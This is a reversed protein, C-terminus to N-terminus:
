GTPVRAFAPSPERRREWLALLQSGAAFVAAAYAWGLVVDIFYHEATYVLTFSMALPYLALLWRRRGAAGWFFLMLLVPYATHLSPVAAVPNALHSTASFIHAGSRLGVRVWMEDIIKATPALAGNQSALWPPMAPYIAYTIFAAFTLSVFMVAYRRFRDHDVKWLVAAVTIPVFFHSIYVLFAAYDWIHPNGPSYLAHQLTITPATGGFLFEDVHIQPYVHPVLWTDAKARLTDYAFLLVFLPAWDIIVRMWAHRRNTSVAVLGAGIVLFLRTRNTPLGYRSIYLVLGACWLAFWRNARVVRVARRVFGEGIGREREADADAGTTAVSAGAPAGIEAALGLNVL